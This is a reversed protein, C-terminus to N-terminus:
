AIWQLSRKAVREAEPLLKRFKYFYIVTLVALPRLESVMILTLHAIEM